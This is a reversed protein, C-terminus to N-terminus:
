ITSKKKRRDMPKEQRYNQVYNQTIKNKMKKKNGKRIIEYCVEHTKMQSIRVFAFVNSSKFDLKVRYANLFVKQNFILFIGFM